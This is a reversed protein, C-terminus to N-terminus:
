DTGNFQGNRLLLVFRRVKIELSRMQKQIEKQEEAKAKAFERRKAEVQLNVSKAV